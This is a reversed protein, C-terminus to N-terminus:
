RSELVAIRSQLTQIEAHLDKIAEVMYAFLGPPTSFNLAKENEGLLEQEDKNLIGETIWEPFVEQFEQAIFGCDEIKGDKPIKYNFKRGKLSTIKSLADTISLINEKLRRDSIGNQVITSRLTLQGSSNLQALEVTYRTFRLVNNTLYITYENGGNGNETFTLGPSDNGHIFVKPQSAAQNGLKLNGDWIHLKVAPTTTGIGVFGSSPQLCLNEANIYPYISQIYSYGAACGLHLNRGSTADKITFNGYNDFSPDLTPVSASHTSTIIPKGTINVNGVVELRERTLTTGIGVNGSIYANGMVHLPQTAVTTGIGINGAIYTNGIVDLLQTPNTTGIGIKGSQYFVANANSTYINGSITIDGAVSFKTGPTTTGVGINGSRPHIYLGINSTSSFSM